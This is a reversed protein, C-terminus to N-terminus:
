IRSRSMSRGSCRETSFRGNLRDQRLIEFVRSSATAGQQRANDTM